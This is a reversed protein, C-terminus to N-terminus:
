FCSESVSRWTFYVTDGNIFYTEPIDAATPQKSQAFGKSALSAAFLAAMAADKLQVRSVMVCNERPSSWFGDLWGIQYGTCWWTREFPRTFLQRGGSYISMEMGLWDRPLACAYHEVPSGGPKTYVGMEGGVALVGAYAGKWLQILWDRGGYPFKVHLTDIFSLNLVTIADYLGNFGFVWQPAYKHNYIYGEWPEVRLTLLGVSKFLTDVAKGAPGEPAASVAPAACAALLLACLLAALRKRTKLKRM